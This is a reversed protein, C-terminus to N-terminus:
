IVNISETNTDVMYSISEFIPTTERYDTQGDM